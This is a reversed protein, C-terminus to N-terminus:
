RTEHWQFRVCLPKWHLEKGCWVAVATDTYWTSTVFQKMGAPGRGHVTVAVEIAVDEACAKPRVYYRPYHCYITKVEEHRLFDFVDHLLRHLEDRGVFEANLDLRELAPLRLLRASLLSRVGEVPLCRVDVHTVLPLHAGWMTSVWDGYSAQPMLVIGRITPGKNAVLLEKLRQNSRVTKGQPNLMFGDHRPTMAEVDSRGSWSPPTELVLARSRYLMGLLAGAVDYQQRAMSAQALSYLTLVPVSVTAHDQEPEKGEWGSDTDSATDQTEMNEHQLHTMHTPGHAFSETHLEMILRKNLGHMFSVHSARLVTVVVVGAKGSWAEERESATPSPPLTPGPCRPLSPHMRGGAHTPDGSSDPVPPYPAAERGVRMVGGVTVAVGDLVLVRVGRPKEGPGLM